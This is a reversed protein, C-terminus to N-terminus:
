KKRDPVCMVITTKGEREVVIERDFRCHNAALRPWYSGDYISMMLVDCSNSERLMAELREEDGPGEVPGRCTQNLANAQSAVLFVMVPIALGSRIM